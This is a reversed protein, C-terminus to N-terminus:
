GCPSRAMVWWTPGIRTAPHVSCIRINKANITFMSYFKSRKEVSLGTHVLAMVTMTPAAKLSAALTVHSTAANGAGFFKWHVNFLEMPVISNSVTLLKPVTLLV